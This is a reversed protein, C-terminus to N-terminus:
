EQLHNYIVMQFPLPKAITLFHQDFDLVSGLLAFELDKLKMESTLPITRDKWRQWIWCLDREGSPELTDM